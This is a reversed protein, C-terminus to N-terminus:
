GAQDSREFGIELLGLRGGPDSSPLYHDPSGDRIEVSFRVDEVPCANYGCNHLLRAAMAALRAELVAVLFVHPVFATVAAM